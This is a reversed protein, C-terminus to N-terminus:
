WSRSRLYASTSSEQPQNFIQIVPAYEVLCGVQEQGRPLTNIFGVMDALRAAQQLNHTVIVITYTQKLQILLQDIHLSAVPDLFACPEDMLIVQPQLALARAICLRQQQGGSLTLANKKLDNKVENWLGVQMLAHEVQEGIEGNFGNVRLGLAINEYISKPFPNPRQFVMGVRRRLAIPNILAINQRDLYITGTVRSGKILLNLQNLCRLLTSKGCGSPGILATLQNAYIEMSVDQLALNKGYWVSVNKLQFMTEIQPNM